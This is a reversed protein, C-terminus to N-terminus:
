KPYYSLSHWAQVYNLEQTKKLADCIIATFCMEDDKGLSHCLVYSGSHVIHSFNNSTEYPQLIINKLNSIDYNIFYYLLRLTASREKM